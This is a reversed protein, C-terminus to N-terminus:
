RSSAKGAAALIQDAFDAAPDAPIDARIRDYAAQGMCRWEGQRQWARELAAGIHRVTAAEAIFGNEGDTVLEAHGAVDTALAPRGCMLAEVLSLPMGENRSPQAIMHHDRWIQSVNDVHGGFSVRDSIGLLAALRELGRRNEGDGFFTLTLGRDRWVPAALAQLLLDHGKARTQLRAVCALRLPSASAPWDFPASRDVKVPNRAVAANPLRAGIHHEFEEINRSAVWYTRTAATFAARLRDAVPDAPWMAPNVGHTVVQYPLGRAHALEMFPLASIDNGESFVVCDPKFGDIWRRAAAMEWRGHPLVRNVLKTFAGAHASPNLFRLPIGRKSLSTLRAPDHKRWNVAAAVQHGHDALKAAAEIWLTESAGTGHHSSIFLIKM